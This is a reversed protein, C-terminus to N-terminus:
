VPNSELCESQNHYQCKPKHSHGLYIIIPETKNLKLSVFNIMDATYIYKVSTHNKLPQLTSIKNCIVFVIIKKKKCLRHLKQSIKYM